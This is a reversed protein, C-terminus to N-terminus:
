VLRLPMSASMFLTIVKLIILVIFPSFDFGSIDPVLRRGLDLLPDTVMKIIDNAPHQWAPNVWSMVVRILIMYFLLNCPQVILDAVSFLLIYSIPMLTKYLLLGLVIFKIIEVVILLGFCVWDYRQKAPLKETGILRELPGLLPDTLKNIAQHVPHLSSVHFYRLILRLWLVFLFLNFFLSILFYTVAMLGAM